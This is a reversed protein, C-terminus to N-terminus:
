STAGVLEDSSTDESRADIASQGSASLSIPVRRPKAKEAIPLRLTLVGDAYSAERQRLRSQLSQESARAVAVDSNLAQVTRQIEDKIRAEVSSCIPKAAM